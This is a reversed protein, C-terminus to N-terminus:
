AVAIWVPVSELHNGAPDRVDVTGSYGMGSHGTADAVLHFQTDSTKLLSPPVISVVSVPLADTGLDAVMPGSLHLTRVVSTAMSPLPSVSFTPSTAINPQDQAGSLVAAADFAENVLLVMSEGALSTCASLDAAADQTTYTGTDLKTAMSSARAGWTTVLWQALQLYGEVALRAGTSM